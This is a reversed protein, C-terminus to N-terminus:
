SFLHHPMEPLARLKSTKLSVFNHAAGEDRGAWVEAL